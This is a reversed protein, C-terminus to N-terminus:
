NIFWYVFCVRYNHSNKHLLFTRLEAMEQSPLSSVASRLAACRASSSPAKDPVYFLITSWSFHIHLQMLHNWSIHIIAGQQVSSIAKSRNRRTARQMCRVALFATLTPRREVSEWDTGCRGGGGKAGTWDLGPRGTMVNGSEAALRWLLSSLISKQAYCKRLKRAIKVAVACLPTLAGDWSSPTATTASPKM